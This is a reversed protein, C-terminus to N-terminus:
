QPLVAVRWSDVIEVEHESRAFELESSALSHIQAPAVLIGRNLRQSVLPRSVKRGTLDSFGNRTAKAYGLEWFRVRERFASCVCDRQVASTASQVSNNM